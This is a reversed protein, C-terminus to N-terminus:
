ALKPGYCSCVMVLDHYGVQSLWSGLAALLDYVQLHQSPSLATDQLGLLQECGQSCHCLSVYLVILVHSSMNYPM